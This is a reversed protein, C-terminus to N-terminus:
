SGTERKKGQCEYTCMRMDEPLLSYPIRTYFYLSVTVCILFVISVMFMYIWNLFIADNTIDNIVSIDKNMNDIIIARNAEYSAIIPEYSRYYDLLQCGAVLSIKVYNRNFVGGGLMKPEGFFGYVGSPIVYVELIEKDPSTNDYKYMDINDEPKTFYWYLNDGYVTSRNHSIFDLVEEAKKTDHHMISKLEKLHNFVTPYKSKIYQIDNNTYVEVNNLHDDIKFSKIIAPINKTDLIYKPKNIIGYAALITKTEDQWIVEDYRTRNRNPYDIIPNGKHFPQGCDSSNDMNFIMEPGISVISFWDGENNFTRNYSTMRNIEEGLFKILEDRSKFKREATTEEIIKGVSELDLRMQNRLNDELKKLLIKRDNDEKDILLDVSAKIEAVRKDKRSTLKVNRASMFTVLSLVILLSVFVVILILARKRKEVM